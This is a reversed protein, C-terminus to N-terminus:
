KKALGIATALAAGVAVWVKSVLDAYTKVAALHDAKPKPVLTDASSAATAIARAVEPPLALANQDILYYETFFWAPPCLGWFLVLAVLLSNTYWLSGDKGVIELAYLLGIVALLVLLAGAGRRFWTYASYSIPSSDWYSGYIILGIILLVWPLTWYMVARVPVTPNAEIKRDAM